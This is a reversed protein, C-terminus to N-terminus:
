KGGDTVGFGRVANSNGPGTQDIRERNEPSTAMRTVYYAGGFAFVAMLLLLVVVFRRSTRRGMPRTGSVPFPPPSVPM